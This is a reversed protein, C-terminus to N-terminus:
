NALLIKDDALETGTNARFLETLDDVTMHERKEGEVDAIIYGEHLVITRTGYALADAMNHTIMLTTTNNISIAEKTIELVKKTAQPDLAATHEDLLLMKPAGIVAMLLCVTQRQGGSLLGVKTDLRRELGVDFRSLIDAIKKRKQDTMAIALPNTNTSRGLALSINEAITLNPATGKLPDQFVRSMFRSRKYDKVFTIDAGDLVIRGKDPFVSGAICNFLTSKGAGNSGVVCVFEGNKINLNVNKLAQHETVGGPNFTKSMGTISLMNQSATTEM